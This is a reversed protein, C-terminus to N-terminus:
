LETILLRVEAASLNLRTQLRRTLDAEGNRVMVLDADTLQTFRKRLKMRLSAWHGPAIRFIGPPTAHKPHDM